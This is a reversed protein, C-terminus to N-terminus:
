PFLLITANSIAATAPHVSGDIGSVVAELWCATVAFSACTGALKRCPLCDIRVRWSGRLLAPPPRESAALGWVPGSVIMLKESENVAGPKSLSPLGCDTHGSVITPRSGLCFRVLRNLAGTM